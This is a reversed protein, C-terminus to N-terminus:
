AEEEAMEAQKRRFAAVGLGILGPLLAPTPVKEIEGALPFYVSGFQSALTVSGERLAVPTGLSLSNLDPFVLSVGTLMDPGTSASLTDFSGDVFTDYTAEFEEFLPFLGVFTAKLNINSFVGGEYDFSGSLDGYDGTVGGSANKLVIDSDVTFTAAVASEAGVVMFGGVASFVAASMGLKTIKDKLIM